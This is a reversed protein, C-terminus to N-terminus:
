TGPQAAEGHAAILQHTAVVAALAFLPATAVDAIVGGLWEGAAGEGLLSPGSEALLVGLADGGLSVPVLLALVRWFSGSVLQRSRAFAARVGAGEIEVVAPALAFWTFLIVGPVVLAILGAVVVLAFLVDVAILTAYPLHSAIQRLDRRVGERRMGVAAAVVGTYFVDGLTAFLSLGLAAVIAEAVELGGDTDAAHLDESVLELAVIPGFVVVAVIALLPWYARYAAAAERV